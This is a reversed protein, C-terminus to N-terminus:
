RVIVTAKCEAAYRVAMEAASSDKERVLDKYQEFVPQAEACRGAEALARAEGWIAVARGADDHSGDFREEADEFAEVAEDTRGLATLASGRDYLLWAGRPGEPASETQELVKEYDHAALAGVAESTRPDVTVTGTASAPQLSTAGVDPRPHLRHAACAANVLVVATLLSSRVM